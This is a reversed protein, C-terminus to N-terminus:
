FLKIVAVRAGQIITTFEQEATCGGNLTELKELYEDLFEYQNFLNEPNQIGMGENSKFNEIAEKLESESSAINQLNILVYNIKKDSKNIEDIAYNLDDRATNYIQDSNRFHATYCTLTWYDGQSPLILLCNKDALVEELPEYGKPQKYLFISDYRVNVNVLFVVVIVLSILGKFAKIKPILGLIFDILYVFVICIIPFSVFVYRQSASGMKLVDVTIALVIYFALTSVAMFVITLNFRKLIAVFKLLGKKLTSKFKIFYTEKRLLYCIPAILIAAVLLVSIIIQLNANDFASKQFGFLATTASNILMKTQTRVPLTVDSIVSYGFIQKIGAPYLVGFLILAGLISGGYIFMKKIKKKCLLYICMCATFIGIYTIITYQTFFALFACIVIGPLSSKLKLNDSTFFKVNFYTFMTCLATLLFYQRMFIHTNLAGLGFGYFISCILPLYRSKLLLKLTKYMFIQTIILSFVSISYAFFYSFQNPFFSSITTLLAYYLPPHHDLSQNSYVSKYSFGEGEQVTLYDNYTKGTSWENYHDYDGITADDIFVDPKLYIHPQYYSNALGYSWLEDSHTGEKEYVFMYTTYLLELIIIIILLILS